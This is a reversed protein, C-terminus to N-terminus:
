KDNLLFNKRANDILDIFNELQEKDVPIDISVTKKAKPWGSVSILNGLTYNIPDFLESIETTQTCKWSSGDFSYHYLDCGRWMEIDNGKRTIGTSINGASYSISTRGDKFVTVDEVVDKGSFLTYSVGFDLINRRFSNVDKGSIEKLNNYTADESNKAQASYEDNLNNACGNMALGALGVLGITLGATALKGILGRFKKM